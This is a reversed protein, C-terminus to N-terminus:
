AAERLRADLSLTLALLGLAFAVPGSALLPTLHLAAGTFEGAPLFPVLAAIAAVPGFMTLRERWAARSRAAAVRAAFGDDAVPALPAALMADLRDDGIM